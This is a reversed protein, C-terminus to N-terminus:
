RMLEALEEMFDVVEQLGSAHREEWAIRYAINSKPHDILGVHTLLDRQFMEQLRIKEDRKEKIRETRWKFERELAEKIPKGCKICFSYEQYDKIFYKRGCDCAYDTRPINDGRYEYDGRRIKERIDESM